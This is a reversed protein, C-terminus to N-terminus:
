VRHSSHEGSTMGRAILVSKTSSIAKKRKADKEVRSRPQEGQRAEGRRAESGCVVRPAATGLERGVPGHWERSEDWGHEGLAEPCKSGYLACCGDGKELRARRVVGGERRPLDGDVLPGAHRSLHSAIGAERAPLLTCLLRGRGGNQAAGPQYHYPIQSIGGM